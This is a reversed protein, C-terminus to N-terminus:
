GSQWFNFNRRALWEFGCSSVNKFLAGLVLQRLYLLYEGKALPDDQLLSKSV